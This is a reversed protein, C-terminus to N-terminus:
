NLELYINKDWDDTVLNDCYERLGCSNFSIFGMLINQTDELIGNVYTEILIDACGLEQTNPSNVIFGYNLQYPPYNQIKLVDSQYTISNSGVPINLYTVDNGLVTYYEGPPSNTITIISYIEYDVLTPQTPLSPVCGYLLITVLFLNFIKKM